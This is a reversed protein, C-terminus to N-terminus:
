ATGGKSKVRKLVERLMEVAANIEHMEGDGGGRDPHYRKALERYGTEVVREMWTKDADQALERRELEGRYEEISRTALTILFQLYDDPVDTIPLGKYKGFKM